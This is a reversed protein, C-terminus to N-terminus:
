RIGFQVLRERLRAALWHHDIEVRVPADTALFELAEGKGVLADYTLERVPFQEADVHCSIGGFVRRHQTAEPKEPWRCQNEVVPVTLLLRIRLQHSKDIGIGEERM